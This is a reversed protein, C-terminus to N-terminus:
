DHDQEKALRTGEIIADRMRKAHVVGSPTNQGPQGADVGCTKCLVSTSKVKAM